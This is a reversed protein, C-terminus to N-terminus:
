SFRIDKGAFAMLNALIAKRSIQTNSYSMTISQVVNTTTDRSM